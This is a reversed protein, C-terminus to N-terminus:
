AIQHVGLTADPPFFPIAIAQGGTLSQTFVDFKEAGYFNGIPTRDVNAGREVAQASRMFGLFGAASGTSQTLDVKNGSLDYVTKDDIHPVQTAAGMQGFLNLFSVLQDAQRSVAQTQEGSLPTGEANAWATYGNVLDDHFTQVAQVLGGNSNLLNQLWARDTDSLTSSTVKIAGNDAQFDFQAHALDPRQQMLQQMSPVLATAVAEANEGSRANSDLATQYKALLAATESSPAAGQLAAPTIGNAALTSEVGIWQQQFAQNAALDVPTVATVTTAATANATQARATAGLNSLDSSAVPNTPNISLNM